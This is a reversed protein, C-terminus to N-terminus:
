SLSAGQLTSAHIFQLNTLDQTFGISRGRGAAKNDAMRFRLVSAVLGGVWREVALYSLIFEPPAYWRRAKPLTAILLGVGIAISQEDGHDM